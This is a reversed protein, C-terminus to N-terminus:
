IKDIVGRVPVGSNRYMSNTLYTVSPDERIILMNCHYTGPTNITSCALACTLHIGDPSTGGFVYGAAPIFIHKGNKGTLIAGSLNDINNYKKTWEITTYKLLEECQYKTPIHFKYNYLHVNQTIVDDEPQIEMLKDEKNYKSFNVGGYKYTTESFCEKSELEGWAYYKGWWHYYYQDPTADLNYKCWRTGSPLGLDVTLEDLELRQQIVDKSDIVDQKSSVSNNDEIDQYDDLALQIGRNVAELIKNYYKM